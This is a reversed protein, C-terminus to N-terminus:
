IRACVLITAKELLYDLNEFGQECKLTIESSEVGSFTQFSALYPLAVKPTQSNANM